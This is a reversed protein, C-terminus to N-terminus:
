IDMCMGRYVGPCIWEYVQEDYIEDVYPNIVWEAEGDCGVELGYPYDPCEGPEHVKM